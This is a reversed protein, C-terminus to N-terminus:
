GSCMAAIFKDWSAGFRHYYETEVDTVFLYGARARLGVTLQAVEPSPVSHVMYSSQARHYPSKSLWQQHEASQFNAYSEEVVTTVDPGPDALRSDVASGPNHVVLRQGRIGQSEKVRMTIADLYMKVEESFLNPTEDFFIGGVGLGPTKSWSAYMEVDDFVESIPRKCYTTAVYGLTQVNPQASLKPIERVYDANPWWPPAGPGSNPNVIIIFDLTPNEVITTHLVDWAGHDPYIYLPLLVSSKPTLSM